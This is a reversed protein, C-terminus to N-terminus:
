FVNGIAEVPNLRSASLAPAFGSIIGIIVSIFLGLIVNAMSLLFEMGTIQGFIVTGLYVFILGLLGGILSLIIAEFLFQLLIFYKKAGLAMQIGIQNTREKVSVFMINAIGFGGVLISFGGIIWGGIDIGIFISEFGQSIVSSENLAFNDETIPKLKRVARMIRRLEDKLAENSVNERAKVMIYPNLNEKRIDIINRAYNVPILVVEDMSSDFIGQGEKQFVGIIEVNRGLIKISKGLPNKNEFLEQSIKHGIIAKNHGSNSEYFSFYRGTTIEFTRIQDFDHSVAWITINEAAINKYKITKTTSAGFAAAKIKRARKQVENFDQLSPVPRNLYKWWPYDDGFSWPWKQIYIVDNGLSQISNKISNEMADIVTFVTIIAFIGITIGLLSLLTRLKNVIISNFAFYISEKILRILLM